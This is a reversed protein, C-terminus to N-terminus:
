CNKAGLLLSGSCMSGILQRQPDVHISNIYDQNKYLDQVGKGSAFIVADASPLDFISGTM